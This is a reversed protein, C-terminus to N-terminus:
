SMSGNRKREFAFLPAALVQGLGFTAAAGAIGWAPLVFYALLLVTGSAVITIAFLPRIRKTVRLETAFVYNM